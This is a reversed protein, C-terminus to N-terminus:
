LEKKLNHKLVKNLIDLNNLLYMKFNNIGLIMSSEYFPGHETLARFM